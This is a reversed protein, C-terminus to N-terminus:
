HTSPALSTLTRQNVGTVEFVVFFELINIDDSDAHLITQCLYAEAFDTGYNQHYRSHEIKLVYAIRSSTKLLKVQCLILVIPM